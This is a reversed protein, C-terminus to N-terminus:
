ALSGLESSTRSKLPILITKIIRALWLMGVRSDLDSLLDVKIKVVQM